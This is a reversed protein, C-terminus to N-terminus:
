NTILQAATKERDTLYLNKIKQPLHSYFSLSASSDPQSQFEQRSPSPLTSAASISPTSSQWDHLCSALWLEIDRYQALAMHHNRSPALCPRCSRTASIAKAEWINTQDNEYSFALQARHPARGTEDTPSEPQYWSDGDPVCSYQKPNTPQEDPFRSTDADSFAGLPSSESAFPLDLCLDTQVDLPAWLATWRNASSERQSM